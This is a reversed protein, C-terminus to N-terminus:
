VTQLCPIHAAKTCNRRYDHLLPSTVKLYLRRSKSIVTPRSKGGGEKGKEGKKDKRGTVERGGQGDEREGTVKKRRQGLGEQSKAEGNRKDVM